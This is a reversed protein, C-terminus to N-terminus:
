VTGKAREDDEDCMSRWHAGAKPSAYDPRPKDEWPFEDAIITVDLYLYSFCPHIYTLQETELDPYVKWASFFFLTVKVESSSFLFSLILFIDAKGYHNCQLLLATTLGVVGAGIVAVLPKEHKHQSHNTMKNSHSNRTPIFHILSSSPLSSKKERENGSDASSVTSPRTVRKKFSPNENTSLVKSTEWPSWPRVITILPLSKKAEISFCDLISRGRSLKKKWLWSWPYGIINYECASQVGKGEKKKTADRDRKIKM